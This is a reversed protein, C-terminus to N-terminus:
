KIEYDYSVNAAKKIMAAVSCYKEASLSVANKVKAEDLNEGSLSYHVHLGIIIFAKYLRKFLLLGGRGLPCGEPPPSNNNLWCGTKTALGTSNQPCM